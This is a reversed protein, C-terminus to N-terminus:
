RSTDKIDASMTKYLSDSSSEVKEGVNNVYEKLGDNAKITTKDTSKAQNAKEIRDKQSKIPNKEYFDFQEEKALRNIGVRNNIEKLTETLPLRISWEGKEKDVEVRVMDMGLTGINYTYQTAKGEKDHKSEPNEEKTAYASIAVLAALFLKEFQRLARSSLARGISETIKSAGSTMFKLIEEADKNTKKVSKSAAGGALPRGPGNTKEHEKEPEITEGPNIEGDVSFSSRDTDRMRGREAEVYPGVEVEGDVSMNASNNKM